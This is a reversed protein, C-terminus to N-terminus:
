TLCFHAFSIGIAANWSAVFLVVAVVSFANAEFAKLGPSSAARTRLWLGLGIGALGPVMLVSAEPWLVPRLSDLELWVDGVFAVLGVLLFGSGLALTTRWRRRASLAVALPVIQLCGGILTVM